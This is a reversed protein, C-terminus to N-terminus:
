INNSPESRGSTVLHSVGWEVDIKESILKEHLEKLNCVLSDLFFTWYWDSTFTVLVSNILGRRLGM